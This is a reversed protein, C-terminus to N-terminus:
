PKPAPSPQPVDVTVQRPSIAQAPFDQLAAEFMPLLLSNVVGGSRTYVAHTEYLTQSSRRDRILLDVQMQTLPPEFSMGFGVGGHGGGWMGGVGFVGNFFSGDLRRGWPDDGYGSMTRAQAGVQILVDAQEMPVPTFGKRALVPTAAAEVRNQLDAQAQQSPLREFAYRQAHGTPWQGYSSVEATISKLTGCAGLMTVLALGTLGMLGQRVLGRLRARSHVPGPCTSIMSISATM